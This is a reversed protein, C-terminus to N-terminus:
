PWPWRRRWEPHWTLVWVKAEVKIESNSFNSWALEANCNRVEDMWYICTSAASACAEYAQIMAWANHM